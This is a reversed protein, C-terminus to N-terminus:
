NNQKTNKRDDLEENLDEGNFVEKSYGQNNLTM